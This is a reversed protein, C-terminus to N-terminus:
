LRVRRKGNVTNRKLEEYEAEAFEWWPHRRYKHGFREKMKLTIYYDRKIREEETLPHLDSLSSRPVFSGDIVAGEYGVGNIFVIGPAEPSEEYIPPKRKNKM